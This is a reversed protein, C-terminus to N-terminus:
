VQLVIRDIAEYKIVQEINSAFVYFANGKRLLKITGSKVSCQHSVKYCHRQCTNGLFFQDGEIASRVSCQRGTSVFSFPLYVSLKKMNNLFDIGQPLVDIECKDIGYDDLIALHSEDLLAIQQIYKLGDETYMRSNDAESYRYEKISKNLLRGALRKVWAHKQKLMYVIGWENCVIETDMSNDADANRIEQLLADMMRLGDDNFSPTVITLKKGKDLNTRIIRKWEEITPFAFQCFEDGFYCRNVKKNAINQAIVNLVDDGYGYKKRCHNIIEECNDSDLNEMVHNYFVCLEKM